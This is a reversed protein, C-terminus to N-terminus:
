ITFTAQAPPGCRCLRSFPQDQQRGFADVYGITGEIVVVCVGRGYQELQPGALTKKVAVPYHNKPSLMNRHRFVTPTGDLEVRLLELTLPMPTNNVVNFTITLVAEKVGATFGRSAASWAELDVWQHYLIEQLKISREAAEASLKTAATQEEIKKLTRYAGVVGPAGVLMLIGTFIVSFKTWWDAAVIVPPLSRVVIPQEPNPATSPRAERREEAPAAASPIAPSSSTPTKQSASANAGSHDRAAPRDSPKPPTAPATQFIALLLALFITKM